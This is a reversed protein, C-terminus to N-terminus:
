SATIAIKRSAAAQNLARPMGCHGREVTAACEVTTMGARPQRALFGSARYRELLHKVESSSAADADRKSAELLGRRYTTLTM